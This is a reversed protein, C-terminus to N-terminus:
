RQGAELEKLIKNRDQCTVCRLREETCMSGNFKCFMINNIIKKFQKDKERDVILMAEFDVERMEIEEAQRAYHKMGEVVAPSVKERPKHSLM